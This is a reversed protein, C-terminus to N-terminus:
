KKEQESLLLRNVFAKGQIAWRGSAARIKTFQRMRAPTMASFFMLLHFSSFPIHGRKDEQEQQM